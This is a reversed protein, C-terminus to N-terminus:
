SKSLKYEVLLYNYLTSLELIYRERGEEDMGALVETDAMRGIASTALIDESQVQKVYEYCRFLDDASLLRNGIFFVKGDCNIAKLKAFDSYDRTAVRARAQKIIDYRKANQTKM